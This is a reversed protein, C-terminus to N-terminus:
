IRRTILGQQSAVRHLRPAVRSMVERRVGRVLWAPLLAYPMGGGSVERKIHVVSSSAVLNEVDAQQAGKFQTPSGAVRLPSAALLYM